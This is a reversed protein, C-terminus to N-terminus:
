NNHLKDWVDGGNGNALQKPKYLSADLAAGAGGVTAMTALKQGTTLKSPTMAVAKGIGTKAVANWAGKGMGKGAAVVPAAVAKTATKAVTGLVNGFVGALGASKEMEFIQGASKQMETRKTIEFVLECAEKYLAAINKSTKLDAEKFMEPITNRQIMDAKFVLRAIKEFDGGMPIVASLKDLALPDNALLSAAKVLKDRVVNSYGIADELARDNIMAEKHLGIMAEKTTLEPFSVDFVSVETASQTVSDMVTDAVKLLSAPISAIQLIENYDALPFETTREGASKELTKLYALTNTAEVARKVQESNLSLDAAEKALSNSLPIQNTLFQTTCRVALDQLDQVSLAHMISKLQSFFLTSNFYIMVVEFIDRKFM